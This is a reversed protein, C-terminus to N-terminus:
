FKLIDEYDFKAPNLFIKDDEKRFRPEDKELCRKHIKKRIKKTFGLNILYDMLDIEVVSPLSDQENNKLMKQCLQMYNELERIRAKLIEVENEIEIKLEPNQIVEIQQKELNSDKELVVYKKGNKQRYQLKGIRIYKYVTGLSMDFLKAYEKVTVLKSM